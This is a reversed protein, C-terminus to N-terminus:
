KSRTTVSTECNAVPRGDNILRSFPQDCPNPKQPGGLDGIEVQVADTVARADAETANGAAVREAVAVPLIVAISRSGASTTAQVTIRRTPETTQAAVKTGTIQLLFYIMFIVAIVVIIATAYRKLPEPLFTNALYWVLAVVIFFILVTVILQILGPMAIFSLTFM